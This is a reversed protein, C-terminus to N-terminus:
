HCREGELGWPGTRPLMGDVESPDGRGAGDRALDGGRSGLPADSISTRRPMRSCGRRAATDSSGRRCTPRSGVLRSALKATSSSTARPRTAEAVAASAPMYIMATMGSAARDRVVDRIRRGAAVELRVARRM